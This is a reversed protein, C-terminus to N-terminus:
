LEWGGIRAAVRPKYKICQGNVEKEIDDATALLELGPARLARILNDWSAGPNISLWCKLMEVCGRRHENSYTARIEDLRPLQSENLLQIGLEYWKNAVRPVVINHLDKLLPKSM